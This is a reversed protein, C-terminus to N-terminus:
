SGASWYVGLESVQHRTRGERLEPSDAQSQARDASRGANGCTPLLKSQGHTDTLHQPQGASRARSRDSTGPSTVASLADTLCRGSIVPDATKERSPAHSM